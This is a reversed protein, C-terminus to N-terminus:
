LLGPTAGSVMRLPAGLRVTPGECGQCVAGGLSWICDPSTGQEILEATAWLPETVQGIDGLQMFPTLATSCVGLVKGWWCCMNKGVFEHCQVDSECLAWAAHPLAPAPPPCLKGLGVQAECPCCATLRM